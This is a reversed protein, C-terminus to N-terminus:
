SDDFELMYRYETEPIIHSAVFDSKSTKDVYRIMKLTEIDLFVLKSSFQAMITTESYRTLSM